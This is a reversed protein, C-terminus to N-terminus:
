FRNRNAQWEAILVFFPTLKKDEHLQAALCQQDLRRADTKFENNIYLTTWKGYSKNCLFVTHKVSIYPPFARIEKLPRTNHMVQEEPVNPSVTSTTLKEEPENKIHRWKAKLWQLYCLDM